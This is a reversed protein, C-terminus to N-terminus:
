TYSYQDLDLPLAVSAKDDDPKPSVEKRAITSVLSLLVVRFSMVVLTDDCVHSRLYVSFLNLILLM